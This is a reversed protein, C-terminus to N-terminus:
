KCEISPRKHKESLKFLECLKQRLKFDCKNYDLYNSVIRQLVGSAILSSTNKHGEVFKKTEEVFDFSFQKFCNLYLDALVLKAFISNEVELAEKTAVTLHKSNISIAIKNVMGRVMGLTLLYSFNKAIQTCQAMTVIKKEHQSREFVFRAIEDKLGNMNESIAEVSRMGLSYIERIIDTKLEGDIGGPYNQIIQGLVDMIKLAASIAAMDKEIESAEEDIESIEYGTQSVTGDNLGMEDLRELRRKKNDKVDGNSGVTGRNLLSITEAMGEDDPNKDFYDFEPYKGLTDYANLLILEIVDTNNAFHCVFIMINGYAEIYLKGSMMEIMDKVRRNQMNYAIHHGAFFYFIYPYRFRYTEMGYACDRVFIDAKQMRELLSLISIKLKKKKNFGDAINEIEEISVSAKQKELMAFAVTSMLEIDINYTGSDKYEDSVKSLSKQIMTEYLFGYRSANNTITADMNQLANILYIPYAPVFGAGNGLFKNILEIGTDIKQELEEETKEFTALNYWKAVLEKRKSNGFPLIEYSLINESKAISEAMLFSTMEIESSVVIFINAALDSLVDLIDSRRNGVTLIADFEDVIIVKQENPLNRYKDLLERSYQDEFNREVTKIVKSREATKFDSGTLYVCVKDRQLWSIYMMKAVATKGSLSNGLVISINNQLLEVDIENKIKTSRKKDSHHIRRMMDPWVFLDQLTVNEKAFHNIAFGIEELWETTMENPVFDRKKIIKNKCFEDTKTIRAYTNGDWDFDICDIKQLDNDFNLIRFGSVESNESNQLEKAKYVQASFEASIMRYDSRCHEHGVLLIDCINNVYDLFDNRCTEHLWNSPHHFVGFLIKYQTLDVEKMFKKPIVIKGYVENLQSMWATNILLFAYKQGDVLLERVQIMEDSYGENRAFKYYNKQIEILTKYIDNDVIDCNIGDVLVDRVSSKAGFDCDHNGPVCITDITQIGKALLKGTLEELISNALIYQEEKGSFAIDGSIVIVVSDKNSVSNVCANIMEDRKSFIADQQNKIHIDSLHIISLGM